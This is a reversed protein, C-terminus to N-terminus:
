DDDGSTNVYRHTTGGSFPTRSDMMAAVAALAEATAGASRMGALFASTEMSTLPDIDDCADEYWARAAAIVAATSRRKMSQGSGAPLTGAGSLPTPKVIHGGAYHKAGDPAVLWVDDGTELYAELQPRMEAETGHSLQLDKGTERDCFWLRWIDSPQAANDTSM